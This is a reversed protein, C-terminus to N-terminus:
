SSAVTFRADFDAYTMSITCAGAESEKPFIRYYRGKNYAINPLLALLFM